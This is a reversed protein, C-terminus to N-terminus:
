VQAYGSSPPRALEKLVKMPVKSSTLSVRGSDGLDGAQSRELPTKALEKVLEM